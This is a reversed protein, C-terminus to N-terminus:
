RPFAVPIRQELGVSCAKQLLTHEFHDVAFELRVDGLVAGVDALMEEAFIGLQEFQHRVEGVVIEEAHVAAAVIRAFDIVGVFRGDFIRARGCQDQRVGHLPVPLALRAFPSINRVVLFFEVFVFNRVEARAKFDGNRIFCRAVRREVPRGRIARFYRIQM